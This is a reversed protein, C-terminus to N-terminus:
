INVDKKKNLMVLKLPEKKVSVSSKTGNSSNKLISNSTKPLKSPSPPGMQWYKEYDIDSEDMNQQKTDLDYKVTKIANLDGLNNSNMENVNPHINLDIAANKMSQYKESSGESSKAENLKSANFTNFHKPSPGNMNVIMYKKFDFCDCRLKEKLVRRFSNRTFIYLFFNISHNSIYFLETVKQIFHISTNKILKISSIFYIILHPLTLLIFTLSVIVLTWTIKLNEIQVKKERLEKYSLEQEHLELKASTWQDTSKYLRIILLTNFVSVIVLPVIIILITYFFTFYLYTIRHEALVDCSKRFFKQQYYPNNQLLSIYFPSLGKTSTTSSTPVTYTSYFIPTTKDNFTATIKKTNKRFQTPVQVVGSLIPAYLSILVSLTVIIYVLRKALLPKSIINSQHPFNVVLFRELTFAVIIWPSVSRCTSRILAFARCMSLKQDTINIPFDLKFHDVIQRCTDDIFHAVLFTIDSIALSILYVRSSTRPVKTSCFVKLSLFNGVVGTLCILTTLYISIETMIKRSQLNITPLSSTPSKSSMKVNIISFNRVLNENIKSLAARTDTNEIENIIQNLKEYDTQTLRNLNDEQILETLDLSDLDSLTINRRNFNRNNHYNNYNNNIYVKNNNNNEKEKESVPLKDFRNNILNKNKNSIIEVSRRRIKKFFENYNFNENNNHKIELNSEFNKENDLDSHALIENSYAVELLCFIIIFILGIKNLILSKNASNMNILKSKTSNINHNSTSFSKSSEDKTFGSKNLISVSLMMFYNKMIHCYFLSISYIGNTSNVNYAKLRKLFM